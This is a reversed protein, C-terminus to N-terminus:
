NTGRKKTKEKIVDKDLYNDAIYKKTQILQQKTQRIIMYNKKKM